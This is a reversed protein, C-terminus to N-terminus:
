IRIASEIILQIPDSRWCHVAMYLTSQRLLLDDAHHIEIGISLRDSGAGSDIRDARVVRFIAGIHRRQWFGWHCPSYHLLIQAAVLKKARSLMIGEEIQIHAVSKHKIIPVTRM